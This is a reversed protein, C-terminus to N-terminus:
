SVGICASGGEEAGLKGDLLLLLLESKCCRKSGRRRGVWIGAFEDFISRRLSDGIRLGHRSDHVIRLLLDVAHYTLRRTM